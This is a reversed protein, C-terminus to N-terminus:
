APLKRLRDVLWRQARVVRGGMWWIFHRPLPPAANCTPVFSCFAPFVEDDLTWAGVSPPLDAFQYEWLNMENILADRSEPPLSVPLRLLALLGHGFFPNVESTRITLLSTWKDQHGRIGIAAALRSVAGKDWPFELTLGDVDYNAYLRNRQIWAWGDKWDAETFIPRQDRRPLDTVTNGSHLRAGIQERSEFACVEATIRVLNTTTAILHLYLDSAPEGEYLMLKSFVFSRDSATDIALCCMSALRNVASAFALDPASAMREPACIVRVITRIRYGELTPVDVNEIRVDTTSHRTTVRVGNEITVAPM